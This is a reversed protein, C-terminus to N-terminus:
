LTPRRLRPPFEPVTPFSDILGEDELRTCLQVAERMPVGITDAIELLTSHGDAYALLDVLARPQLSRDRTSLTPYLGRKGLQPECPTTAVPIRDAELADVCEKAIAFGGALGRPTVLDLDDLSTHYEPYTGYKSRMLSAVPLDVGPSCYQREDSGRDLFSYENHEPAHHRLVHRAVRDSATTGWRTPVMSYAREDGICTLVFGARVRARLADLNRSIYVISGITEPVFVIRYSYRRRRPAGESEVGAADFPRGDSALYRALATTVVIGSLENNAMAPHCIYTSLLIEEETEGPILLEGYNLVGPMLTSDVVARYRGEPLKLRQRHTLCFGWRPAYYSTVYPIADLQDPLSHLHTELEARDLWQDTPVSYGVVHLPHNAVDIVREGAENEIWAARLTWEDPVTWDFASEGTAVERIKLNPLLDQIYRLTERVGPGTISRWTQALGKAWQHM